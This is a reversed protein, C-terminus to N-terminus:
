DVIIKPLDGHSADPRIAAGFCLRAAGWFPELFRQSREAATSFPRDPDIYPDGSDRRKFAINRAKRPKPGNRAAKQPPPDTERFNTPFITDAVKSRKSHGEHDKM